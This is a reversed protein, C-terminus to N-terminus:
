KVSGRRVGHADEDEAGARTFMREAPAEGEVRIDPVHDAGGSVRPDAPGDFQSRDVRGVGSFDQRERVRHTSIEGDDAGLCGQCGAHGVMEDLSPARQESRSARSSSQFGTLCKGFVEHRAM